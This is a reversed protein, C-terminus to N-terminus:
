RGPIKEGAYTKPMSGFVDNRAWRLFRAVAPGPRVLVPRLFFCYYRRSMFVFAAANPAMITVQPVVRSKFEVLPYSDVPNPAYRPTNM